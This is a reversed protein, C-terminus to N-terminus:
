RDVEATPQKLDGAVELVSYPHKSQDSLSVMLEAILGALFMQAGLLVATICYYFLASTHLHLDQM